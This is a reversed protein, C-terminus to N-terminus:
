STFGCDHMITLTCDVKINYYNTFRSAGFSRYQMTIHMLTLSLGAPLTM